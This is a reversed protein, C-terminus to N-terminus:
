RAITSAPASSLAKATGWRPRGSVEEGSAGCLAALDSTRGGRFAQETVQAYGPQAALLLVAAATGALMIARRM